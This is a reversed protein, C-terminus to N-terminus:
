LSRIRVAAGSTRGVIPAMLELEDRTVGRSLMLEAVAVGPLVVGGLWSHRLRALDLPVGASAATAKAAQVRSSELGGNGLQLARTGAAMANLLDRLDAAPETGAAAQLDLLEQDTYPRYTQLRRGQRKATPSPHGRRAAELRCLSRQVQGLTGDNTGRSREVAVFERIEEDRLLDLDFPGNPRRQKLFRCASALLLRADYKAAPAVVLVLAFLGPKLAEWDPGEIYTSQYSDFLANLDLDADM